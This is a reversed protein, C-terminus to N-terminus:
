SGRYTSYGFPHLLLPVHHHEREHRVIFSIEVHPYFGTIEHKEFYPGVEFRIRHTGQRAGAGGTLDLVRGDTDTVGKGVVEWQGPATEFYLSVHVGDAPRGRSTDLIHTSIGSM